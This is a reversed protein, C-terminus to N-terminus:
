IQELKNLQDRLVTDAIYKEAFSRKILSDIEQMEQKAAESVPYPIKIDM